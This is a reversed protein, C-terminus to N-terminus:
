EVKHGKKLLSRTLNRVVQREACSWDRYIRVTAKEPAEAGFRQQLTFRFSFCADYCSSAFSYRKKSPILRQDVFGNCINTPLYKANQPWDRRESRNSPIALGSSFRAVFLEADEVLKDFAANSVVFLDVDSKGARYETGFKKPALSYGLRGSGTMSVQRPEVHLEKAFRERALQYIAPCASFAFPIGEFLWLRAFRFLDCKKVIGQAKWKLPDPYSGNMSLIWDSLSTM